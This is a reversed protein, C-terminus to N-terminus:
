RENQIATINKWNCTYIKIEIAITYNWKCIYIEIWNWPNQFIHNCKVKWLFNKFNKITKLKWLLNEFDATLNEFDATLNELDRRIVLALESKRKTKSIEFFPQFVSIWQYLNVKQGQGFDFKPCPWINM